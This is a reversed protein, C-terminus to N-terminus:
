NSSIVLLEKRPAIEELKQIERESLANEGENASLIDEAAYKRYEAPVRQLNEHLAFFNNQSWAELVTDYYHDRKSQEVTKGFSLAKLPDVEVLQRGIDLRLSNRHDKNVNPLYDIAQEVDIEVLHRAVTEIFQDKLVGQYDSVFEEASEFDQNLYVSLTQTFISTENQDDINFGDNVLWDLADRANRYSWHKVIEDRAHRKLEPRDLSRAIEVAEEPSTTSMRGLASVVAVDQYDRPLFSAETLLGEADRAAWRLLLRKRFERNIFQDGFEFSHEFSQKPDRQSWTEFLQEMSEKADQRNPFESVVHMVEIPAANGTLIATWILSHLLSRKMNRNDISDYIEPLVEAGELEVWHRAITYLESMSQQTYASARIRDYFALRPDVKAAESRIASVTNAVWQEGLGMDQALQIRQDTPLADTRQIVATAAHGQYSEPVTNIAEVAAELDSVAWESFISRILFYRDASTLQDHIQVQDLAEYPDLAAYRGFIISLASSRQKSSSISFSESIYRHIDGKNARALLLYLSASRDFQSNLAISESISQIRRNPDLEVSSVAQTIKPLDDVSIFTSEASSQLVNTSESREVANAWFYVATGAIVGGFLTGVVGAIISVTVNTHM